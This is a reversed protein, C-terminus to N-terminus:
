WDILFMKGSKQLMWNECLADNHCPVKEVTAFYKENLDNVFAKIKAYDGFLKGKNRLIVNEYTQAMQIPDFDVGTNQGCSHLKRFTKAILLVNQPERLDAPHMTAAECIFESVKEGTAADFWYLHPEIGLAFALQTSKKENARDIMEETGMGPLRVALEKEEARGATKVTVHYTRNTLGGMREISVLRCDKFVASVLEAIRNWDKEM